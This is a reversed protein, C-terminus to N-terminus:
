GGSGDDSQPNRYGAHASPWHVLVSAGPMPAGCTGYCCWILTGLDAQPDPAKRFVGAEIIFSLAGLSGMANRADGAEPTSPRMEEEAPPGGVLYRRYTHGSRLLAPSLQNVTRVGEERLYLPLLPHSAADMTIQPWANLGRASLYTTDMGFEHGDAALHPRIRRALQHLARTEPQALVMHDRNLDAGAANLRTAAEAGDPNVMPMVYLDIDPPLLAPNRAIDRILVLLADKGSM